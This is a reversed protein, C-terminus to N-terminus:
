NKAEKKVRRLVMGDSITSIVNVPVEIIKFEDEIDEIFILSDRIAKNNYTYEDYMDFIYNAFITGNDKTLKELEYIYNFFINSRPFCQIIPFTFLQFIYQIPANLSRQDQYTANIMYQGLEM